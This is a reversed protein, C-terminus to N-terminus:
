VKMSIFEIQYLILIIHMNHYRKQLLAKYNENVETLIHQMNYAFNIKKQM